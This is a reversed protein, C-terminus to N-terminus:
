KANDGHSMEESSRNRSLKYIFILGALTLGAFLSLIFSMNDTSAGVGRKETIAPMFQHIPLSFGVAQESCNTTKKCDDKPIGFILRSPNQGPNSVFGSEGQRVARWLDTAPNPVAIPKVYKQGGNNKDEDANVLSSFLFLILCIFLPFINSKRFVFFFVQTM